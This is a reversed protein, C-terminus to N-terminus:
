NNMEGDNVVIVEGIRSVIWLVFYLFKSLKEFLKCCMWENM